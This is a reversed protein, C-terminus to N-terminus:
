RDTYVEHNGTLQMKTGDALEVIYLEDTERKMLETVTDEEVDNSETNYSFVKDGPQVMSVDVLGGDALSIKTGMPVCFRCSLNCYHLRIFTTPVGLM